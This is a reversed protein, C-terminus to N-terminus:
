KLYVLSIHILIGTKIQDQTGSITLGSDASAAGHEKNQLQETAFLNDVYRRRNLERCVYSSEHVIYIYMFFCPTSANHVVSDAKLSISEAMIQLYIKRRIGLRRDSHNCHATGAHPHFM